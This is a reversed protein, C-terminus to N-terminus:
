RRQEYVISREVRNYKSRLNVYFDRYILWHSYFIPFLNEFSGGRKDTFTELGAYACGSLSRGNCPSRYCFRSMRRFRIVRYVTWPFAVLKTIAHSVEIQLNVLSTSAISDPTRGSDFLFTLYIWYHGLYEDNM